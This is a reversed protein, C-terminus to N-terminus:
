ICHSNSERTIKYGPYKAQCPNSAFNLTACVMTYMSLAGNQMRYRNHGNDREKEKDGQSRLNAM